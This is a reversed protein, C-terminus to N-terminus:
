RWRCSRMQLCLFTYLETAGWYSTNPRLAAYGAFNHAGRCTAPLDLGAEEAADLIYQDDPCDITTGTGDSTLFTVKFSEGKSVFESPLSVVDRCM